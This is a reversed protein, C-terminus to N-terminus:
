LDHDPNEKRYQAQRELQKLCAKCTVKDEMYTYNGDVRIHRARDGSCCVAWGRLMTATRTVVGGAYHIKPKM